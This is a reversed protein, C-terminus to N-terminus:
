SYAPARYYKKIWAAVDDPLGNWAMDRGTVDTVLVADNPDVIKLIEDRITGTSKNTRVLWVSKMPKAWDSFGELYKRLPEYKQGPTNLDYEIMMTKM